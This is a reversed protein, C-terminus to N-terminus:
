DQCYPQSAACSAICAECTTANAAVSKCDCNARYCAMDYWVGNRWGCEITFNPDYLRGQGMSDGVGKWRGSLTRVIYKQFLLISGLFFIILLTYELM